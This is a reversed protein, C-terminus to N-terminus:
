IKFANSRIDQIHDLLKYRNIYILAIQLAIPPCSSIMCKSYQKADLAHIIFM